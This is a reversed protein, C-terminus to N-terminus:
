AGREAADGAGRRRVELEMGGNECDWPRGAPPPDSDRLDAAHLRHHYLYKTAAVAEAQAHAQLNTHTHTRARAHTRAQTHAM